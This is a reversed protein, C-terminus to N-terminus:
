KANKPAFITGSTVYTVGFSTIQSGKHLGQPGESVPFKSHIKLFKSIYDRVFSELGFRALKLDVQPQQVRFFLKPANNQMRPDSITGSTVYTVGSSIEPKLADM